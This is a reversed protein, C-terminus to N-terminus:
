RAPADSKESRKLAEGVEVEAKERSRGREFEARESVRAMQQKRAKLRASPSQTAM